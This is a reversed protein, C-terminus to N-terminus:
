GWPLFFVYGYCISIFYLWLLGGGSWMELRHLNGGDSASKGDQCCLRFKRYILTFIRTRGAESGAEGKELSPGKHGPDGGAFGEVDEGLLFAQPM